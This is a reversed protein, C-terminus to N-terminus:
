KNEINGIALDFDYGDVMESAPVNPRKGEYKHLLEGTRMEEVKDFLDPTKSLIALKFWPILTAILEEDSFGMLLCNDRNYKRIELWCYYCNREESERDEHYNEYRYQHYVLTSVLRVFYNFQDRKKAYEPTRNPIDDHFEFAFTALMKARYESMTKYNHEETVSMTIFGNESIFSELENQAYAYAHLYIDFECEKYGYELYLDRFIRFNASLTKANNILGKQAITDVHIEM